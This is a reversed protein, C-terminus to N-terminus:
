FITTRVHAINLNNDGHDDQQNNSNSQSNSNTVQEFLEYNKIKLRQIESEYNKNGEEFEKIKEDAGNKAIVLEDYKTKLKEYESNAMELDEFMKYPNEWVKNFFLQKSVQNTLVNVFENKLTPYTAVTQGINKINGATVSGIRDKFEQSAASSLAKVFTVNDIAM